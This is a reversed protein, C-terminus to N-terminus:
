SVDRGVCDAGSRLPRAAARAGHMPARAVSQTLLRALRVYLCAGVSCVAASRAAVAGPLAAGGRRSCACVATPQLM